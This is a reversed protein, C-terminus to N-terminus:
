EEWYKKYRLLSKLIEKDTVYKQFMYKILDTTTILGYLHGDKVIPLRRIKNKTMIAVAEDINAKYEVTVLPKSMISEVPTNSANKKDCVVRRVIDRETIIGIPHKEEDLVIISSIEKEKMLKSATYVDDSLNIVELPMPTMIDEVAPIHKSDEM